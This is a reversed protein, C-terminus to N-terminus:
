PDFLKVHPYALIKADTTALYYGFRRATAVIFRDAPDSHFDGPLRTSEIATDHDLNIMELGGVYRATRFWQDAPMGLDLKGKSHKLAIEWSSVACVALSDVNPRHARITAMWKAPLPDGVGALRLWICTDLLTRTM